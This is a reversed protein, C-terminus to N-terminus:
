RKAGRPSVPKKPPAKKTAAKPAAKAAAKPKAASKKAAAEPKAPQSVVAQTRRKAGLGGQYLAVYQAATIRKFVDAVVDLPVDELKKVRVCSKGMDLKKGAAKWAAAFRAFEAPDMYLSMFYLGIHNKQSALGAFPLPQRPDCQYGPPFVRHPVYYGIGGYQMGEEFDPDLHRRFLARLATLAERREPPLEALYRDVTAAKSQM